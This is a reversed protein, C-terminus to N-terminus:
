DLKSSGELGMRMELRERKPATGEFDNFMEKARDRLHSLFNESEFFGFLPFSRQVVTGTCGFRAAWIM